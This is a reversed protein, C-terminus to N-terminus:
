IQAEALYPAGPASPQVVPLPCHWKSLLRQHPHPFDPPMSLSAWLPQLEALEYTYIWISCSFIWAHMHLKLTAEPLCVENFDVLNKFFFILDLVKKVSHYVHTKKILSVLVCMIIYSYSFSSGWLMSLLFQFLLPHGKSFLSSTQISSLCLLTCPFHNSMEVSVSTKKLWYLTFIQSCM